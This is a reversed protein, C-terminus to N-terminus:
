LVALVASYRVTRQENDNDINVTIYLTPWMPICQHLLGNHM